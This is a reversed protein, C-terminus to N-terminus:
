STLPYSFNNSYSYVSSAPSITSISDILSTSPSTSINTSQANLRREFGNEEFVRKLDNIENEDLDKLLAENKAAKQKNEQLIKENEALRRRIIGQSANEVGAAVKDFMGQLARSYGGLDQQGEIEQPNTYAGM